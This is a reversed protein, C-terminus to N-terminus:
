YMCNTLAKEFFTFNKLVKKVIRLIGNIRVETLIRQM